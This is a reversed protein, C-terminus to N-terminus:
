THEVKHLTALQLLSRLHLECVRDIGIQIFTQKVFEFEFLGFFKLFDVLVIVLNQNNLLAEEVNAQADWSM